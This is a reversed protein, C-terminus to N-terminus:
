TDKVVIRGAEYLLPLGEQIFSKYAAFQIATQQYMFVIRFHIEATTAHATLIGNLEGLTAPNLTMWPDPVPSLASLYQAITLDKLTPSFALLTSFADLFIPDRHATFNVSIEISHLALLPRLQSIQFLGMPYTCNLCLHELTGASSSLIPSLDKGEPAVNLELKRINAICFALSPRALIHFVDDAFSVRLRTLKSVSPLPSTEVVDHVKVHSFLVAPAASALLVLVSIPLHLRLVDLTTLSQRQIFALLSSAAVPDLDMWRRHYGAASITLRRVNGLSGLLRTIDHVTALSDETCLSLDFKTIHSAIHPSDTVRVGWSGRAPSQVNRLTLSSFLIRQSPERLNHGALACSKLSQRDVDELIAAILEPPISPM